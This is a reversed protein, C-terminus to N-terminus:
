IAVKVTYSDKVKAFYNEVSWYGGARFMVCVAVGQCPASGVGALHSIDLNGDVVDSFKSNFFCVRFFSWGIYEM